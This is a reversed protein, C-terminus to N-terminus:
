QKTATTRLDVVQVAPEISHGKAAGITCEPAGGVGRLVYKGGAPCEPKRKLYGQNPVGKGDPDVLTEMTVSTHMPKKYELAWQETAGDLKMLNEQCKRAKNAEDPPLEVRQPQAAATGVFLIVSVALVVVTKM